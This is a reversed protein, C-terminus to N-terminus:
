KLLMMKRSSTFGDAQIQYIYIGSSLKSADFDVQYTGAEKYEQVLTTVTQGLANFIKVTVNSSKPLAFEINTTPNFPNPYNQRLSYETPLTGDMREVSTVAPESYSLTNTVGTMNNTPIFKVKNDALFEVTGLYKVTNWIADDMVASWQVTADRTTGDNDHNGIGLGFKGGVQADITESGGLASLRIALELIYGNDMTNRAFKKDGDAINNMNDFTVEELATLRTDFSLAAQTSDDPIGDIKLEICDTQYSNTATTSVIDDVVEEYLYFWNADWAAWLKVSKDNDNDPAGNNNFHVANIQLFGDDPGSLGDFFGDRVGDVTIVGPTAADAYASKVASLAAEGDYGALLADDWILSGIPLGDITSIHTSQSFNEQFDTFKTIGLQIGAGEATLADSKIGNDIGPVTNPDYDGYIYDTALIDVTPVIFRADGWQVQNWEAMGTVMDATLTMPTTTGPADTITNDEVFNPYTDFLNKTRDNMWLCPLNGIPNPGPVSWTLYSPLASIDSLLYTASEYYGSILEPSYYNVNNSVFIIMNEFALDDTFQTSDGNLWYKKQVELGNTVNNTDINITSLFEKDPDQGSNTVNIDEGVWNQNVFINNTIYMERRYPSLLWYKKNNILTNHNIIMVDTLQNQQLFTLGGTTVTCNEVLVTDTPVKCNFVRSDWWQANNFLNRFYSNTIKIKAGYPWGGISQAQNTACFLDINAFEFVCNDVTLSQPLQNQTGLTFTQQINTGDLQQTVYYINEFKASGYIQNVAFDTIQVPTGGSPAILIMPKTEVGPNNPDPVGVITLTGTPNVVDIPALQFYFQGQYLAYVRNPNIRNNSGDIDENITTELSGANEGGAFTGGDIYITDVAADVQAFTLSTVAFLVFLSLLIKLKM